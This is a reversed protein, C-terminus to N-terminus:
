LGSPPGALMQYFWIVFGYVAVLIVTVIPAMCITLFLFSRLEDRRVSAETQHPGSTDNASVEASPNSM